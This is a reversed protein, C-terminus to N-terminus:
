GLFVTHKEAMARRILRAMKILRKGHEFQAQQDPTLPGTNDIAM